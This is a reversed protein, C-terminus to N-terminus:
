AGCGCDHQRSLAMCVARPLHSAEICAHMLAQMSQMHLAGEGLYLQRIHSRTGLLCGPLESGLRVGNATLSALGGTAMRCLPGTGASQPPVLPGM